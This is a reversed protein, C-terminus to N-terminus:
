ITDPDLWQSNLSLLHETASYKCGAIELYKFKQLRLTDAILECALQATSETLSIAGFRTPLQQSLVLQKYEDLFLNPGTIIFERFCKSDVLLDDVDDAFMVTAELSQLLLCHKNIAEVLEVELQVAPVRLELLQHGIAAISEVFPWWENKTITLYTLKPLTAAVSPTIAIFDEAELSTLNPCVLLVARMLESAASASGAWSIHEIAPLLLQSSRLGRCTAETNADEFRFTRIRLSRLAVKRSALWAMFGLLAHVITKKENFASRHEGFPPLQSILFHFGPQDSPSFAMDLASLALLLSNGCDGRSIWAYLIEIQLDTPLLSLFASM